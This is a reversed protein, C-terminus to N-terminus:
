PRVAADRGASRPLLALLLVLAALSTIGGFVFPASPGVEDWLLGATISSLLVTVGLAGTYVGLATGRAESPAFDVVFARGVAETLAMYFGYVAFLLWVTAGGSALGFGFYVLSFLLYGSAIVNRRGLRDSVVGAPTATLAYVANFLIYAGVVATDTLGLNSGRLILFADSSNGVAFLLSVALFIYFRGGLRAPSAAAHSRSPPQESPRDRVLALFAVGLAAPIFALLFVVRYNEDAIYLLGLGIAPGIVAGLTDASRHFGFARGRQGAPTVDAVLADRPATRVGKGLRDVFRAGLAAPWVQAAALIPKAIASLGYGAVVLPKRVRLRDSIWGSIGKTLSATSEAVGEILGVAAVPAGLTSTLFLPILPYIMESSIDTLFSVIGLFFVPRKVGPVPSDPAADIAAHPTRGQGAPV